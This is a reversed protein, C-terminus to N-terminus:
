KPVEWQSVGSELNVYFSKIHTKSIRTEWASPTTIHLFHLEAILINDKQYTTDPVCQFHLANMGTISPHKVKWLSRIRHREDKPMKCESDFKARLKGAFEPETELNRVHGAYYPVIMAPQKSMIRDRLADDEGGWGEMENPFGNADEFTTPTMGCIGGIYGTKCLLAYEGTTNLQLVHWPESPMFYGKAREVDPILDIDHLIIRDVTPDTTKCIKFLANLIKGRSFKCDDWSQVGIVIRWTSGTDASAEKLISPMRAQFELLHAYRNQTASDRFPVLIVIHM